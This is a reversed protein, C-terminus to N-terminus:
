LAGTATPDGLSKGIARFAFTSIVAAGLIIALGIIASVMLKKAGATKEENGGSTMWQFGGIIFLILAILGLFGLVINIIRTIVATGSTTSNTTYQANVPACGNDAIAGTTPDFDVPQTGPPCTGGVPDQSGTLAGAAQPVPLALLILLASFTIILFKTLPNHLSITM